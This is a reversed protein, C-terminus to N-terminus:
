NAYAVSIFTPNSFFYMQELVPTEEHYGNYLSDTPWYHEILNWQLPAMVMVMVM